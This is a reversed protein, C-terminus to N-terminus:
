RYWIKHFMFKVIVQFEKVTESLCPYRESIWRYFKPVGMTFCCHERHSNVVKQYQLRNQWIKVVPLLSGTNTQEKWILSNSIKAIIEDCCSETWNNLKTTLLFPVLSFLCIFFLIFLLVVWEASPSAVNQLKDLFKRCNLRNIQKSITM